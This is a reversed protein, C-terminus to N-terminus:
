FPIFISRLIDALSATELFVPANLTEMMNGYCLPELVAHGLM